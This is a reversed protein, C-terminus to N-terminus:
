MKKALYPFQSVRRCVIRVNTMQSQYKLPKHDTKIVFQAGNLYHDINRYLSISLKLKWKCQTRSLKDSLYYIPKVNNVNSLADAVKECYFYFPNGKSVFFVDCIFFFIPTETKNLDKMLLLSNAVSSVGELTYM